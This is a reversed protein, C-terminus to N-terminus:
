PTMEIRARRSTVLLDTARYRGSAPREDILWLLAPVVTEPEPRDSVDEGPFAAQQMATRMDGPDFAYVAVAPEELALVATAHDLASKSSGYGGWGDYAEVAADSSVNVIIGRNQAISPLLQQALGIPALVNVAYVETLVDLPYDRLRPQPSPGLVSANNVLLLVPGISTAAGALAERHRPDAVDGAIAVVDGGISRAAEALDDARRGDIVVSWGREVLASAVARGFGHSGGTVVAVPSTSTTHATM